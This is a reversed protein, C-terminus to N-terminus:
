EHGIGVFPVTVSMLDRPGTNQPVINAGEPLWAYIVERPFSAPRWAVFFPLRRAHKVFPDFEDRYFTSSLRQWPLDGSVGYKRVAQGLFQGGRTRSAKLTTQRALSPPTLGAYMAREMALAPGAYVPGIKPITSSPSGAALSLRLWRATVEDDLFMLPADDGPAIASAFTTWDVNNTSTEVTVSCLSSGITHGAIGVGNFSRSTGLDGKWTAPLATGKWGKSTEPRLPQDAPFDPHESSAEASSAALGHLWNKYLIRAHTLPRATEAQSLVFARPIIVM